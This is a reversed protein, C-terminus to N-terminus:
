IQCHVLKTQLLLNGQEMINRLDYQIGSFGEQEKLFPPLNSAFDYRPSNIKASDASTNDVSIPDEIDITPIPNEHNHRQNRAMRSLHRGNQKNNFDIDQVTQTKHKGHKKTKIENIDVLDKRPNPTVFVKGNLKDLVEELYKKPIFKHRQHTDRISQHFDVPTETFLTPDEQLEVHLDQLSHTSPCPITPDDLCLPSDSVL